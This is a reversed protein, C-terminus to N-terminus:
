IKASPPVRYSVPLSCLYALKYLDFLSLKPSTGFLNEEWKSRFNKFLSGLVATMGSKKMRVYWSYLKVDEDILGQNILDRLNEVAERTKALFVENSDLGMHIAPNNIHIIPICRYQLERGFLTDEHGYKSLAENFKFASFANKEILFNFASFGAWPKQQRIKAPVQERKKGYLYRLSYKKDALKKQYSTGGCVVVGSKAHQLYTKIFNPNESVDADGDLFLIFEFSAQSALYNRNQARGGLRKNEYRVGLWGNLEENLKILNEDDGNDSIIIEGDTHTTELQKKLDAVLKLVDWNYNPILISLGPKQAAM